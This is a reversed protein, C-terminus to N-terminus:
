RAAWREAAQATHSSACPTNVPVDGSARHLAKASRVAKGEKGHPLGLPLFGTPLPHKKKDQGSLNQTKIHYRLLDSVEGSIPIERTKGGKSGEGDKGRFKIKTPSGFRVDGVCIDCVEQARAATDYLFSILVLDRKGLYKKPNPLTMLVTMEEKTFYPFETRIVKPIEVSKASSYASLATMERKSAYKLFATIASMRQRISSNSYKRENKMWIM